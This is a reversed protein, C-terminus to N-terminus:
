SKEMRSLTNMLKDQKESVNELMSLVESLAFYPISGLIGGIFAAIVLWASVEQSYLAFAYIFGALISFVGILQLLFVLNPLLQFRSRAAHARQEAYTQLNFGCDCTLVSAEHKLGCNPCTIM